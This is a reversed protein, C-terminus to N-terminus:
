RTELWRRGHSQFTQGPVELRNVIFDGRSCRRVRPSGGLVHWKLVVELVVELAQLPCLRARARRSTFVAGTAILVGCKITQGVVHITCTVRPLRSFIVNKAVESHAVVLGVWGDLLQLVRRRACIFAVVDRLSRHIPPLCCLRVRRM